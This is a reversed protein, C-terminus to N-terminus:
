GSRGDDLLARFGSLGRADLRNILAIAAARAKDDGSKLAVALVSKTEKEWGLIEYVERVGDVM